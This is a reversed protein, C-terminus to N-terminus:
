VRYATLILLTDMHPRSSASWSGADTMLPMLPAALALYSDSDMVRSHYLLHLTVDIIDYEHMHLALTRPM